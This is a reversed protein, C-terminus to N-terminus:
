LIYLYQPVYDIIKKDLIYNKKICGSATIIHTRTKSTNWHFLNFKDDTKYGILKTYINNIQPCIIGYELDWYTYEGNIDCDIVKAISIEKQYDITEYKSSNINISITNENKILNISNCKTTIKKNNLSLQMSKDGDVSTYYFLKLKLPKDNIYITYIVTRIGNVNELKPLKILINNINDESSGFRIKFRPGNFLDQINIKQPKMSINRKLPSNNNKNLNLKSLLCGM